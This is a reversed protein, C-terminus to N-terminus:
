TAHEPITAGLTFLSMTWTIPQVQKFEAIGLYFMLLSFNLGILVLQSLGRKPKHELKCWLQELTSLLYMLSVFVNDIKELPNKNAGLFCCVVCEPALTLRMKATFHVWNTFVCNLFSIFLSQIVHKPKRTGTNQMIAAQRVTMHSLPAIPACLVVQIIILLMQTKGVCYLDSHRSGPFKLEATAEEHQSITLLTKRAYM